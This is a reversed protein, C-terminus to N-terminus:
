YYRDGILVGHGAVYMCVYMCVYLCVYIVVWLSELDLDKSEGWEFM